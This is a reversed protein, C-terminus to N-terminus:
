KYLPFDELLNWKKDDIQEILTIKKFLLTTPFSYFQINKFITDTCTANRPHILTIHPLHIRINNKQLIHKRLEHFEQNNESAPLFVGKGNSFREPAKFHVPLPKQWDISICNAIIKNLHSQIEDERCLTVHAKILEFQIPNYTSRIHEIVESQESLFLTLQYRIM